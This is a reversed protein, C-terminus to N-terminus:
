LGRRKLWVRPTASVQARRQKWRTPADRDAVEGENVGVEELGFLAKNIPSGWGGVGWERGRARVAWKGVVM